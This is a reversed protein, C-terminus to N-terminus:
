DSRKVASKKARERLPESWGAVPIKGIRKSKEECTPCLMYHSINKIWVSSGCGNCRAMKM